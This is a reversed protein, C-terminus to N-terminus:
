KQDKSASSLVVRVGSKWAISPDLEQKLINQALNKLIVDTDTPPTAPSCSCQRIFTFTLSHGQQMEVMQVTGTDNSGSIKGTLQYQTNKVPLNLTRRTFKENSIDAGYGLMQKLTKETCEDNMSSTDVQYRADAESIHQFALTSVWMHAGEIDNPQHDYTFEGYVSAYRQTTTSPLCDTKEFEKDYQHTLVPGWLQWKTNAQGTQLFTAQARTKAQDASLSQQGSSMPPASAAQQQPKKADQPSLAYVTGSAVLGLGLAGVIVAALHRRRPASTTPATDVVPVAEDPVAKAPKASPEPEYSCRFCGIDPILNEYECQPCTWAM